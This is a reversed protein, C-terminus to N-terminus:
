EPKKMTAFLAEMVADSDQEGIDDLLKLDAGNDTFMSLFQSDPSIYKKGDDKQFVHYRVGAYISWGLDKAM